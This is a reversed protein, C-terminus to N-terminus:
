MGEALREALFGPLGADLIKEQATAVDYSVRRVDFTSKSLDLLGWAARPDGDRPQGVSGPNVLYREKAELLTLGESAARFVNSADNGVGPVHTHGVAMIRHSTQAFITRLRDGPLIYVWDDNVVPHAHALLVDGDEHLHPLKKLTTLATENLADRTWRIARRAASNFGEDPDLDAAVADHNGLLSIHAAERVREVCLQPDAGYGVIDGLCYIRECGCDAADALVSDLAEINGHIDSILALRM